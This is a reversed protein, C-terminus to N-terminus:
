EASRHDAAFGAFVENLGDRSVDLFREKLLDALDELTARLIEGSLRLPEPNGKRCGDESLRYLVPLAQALSSKLNGTYFYYLIPFYILDIRTRVVKQALDQLLHQSGDSVAPIGTKRSVEDLLVAQRALLRMRSLAPYLLVVWSVSATVLALGILSEFTALLRLWALNPTIDGLGLTTLAELSFYLSSSFSKEPPGRFQFGEPFWPWYVLSFGLALLLAWSAIVLLLSIPGAASLWSERGHLLRWVSRAVFDSMSGQASPHFLDYFIQWATLAVIIVGGGMACLRFLM